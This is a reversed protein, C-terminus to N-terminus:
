GVVGQLLGGMFILITQAGMIIVYNQISLLFTTEKTQVRRFERINKHVPMLTLFLLLSIPHLIGALVMFLNVPYILYYIWAFLPLAAERMYYPLTFRGVQVDKELDCINNALMIGATTFMPAMSLLILIGFNQLNVDLSVTPWAATVRLFSEKPLNIYLVLFPILLGYFIGSVVEGLPMRSVPIPGWTYLIGAMFCMGGAILVVWDTLFVLWLGMLTSVVLLALLISLSAARSFPLIQHNTKSDIYNNIATTTLDFLFMSCFFVVTELRQVPQGQQFLYAIALLFAFVSTIKTKIETYQFFGVIFGM